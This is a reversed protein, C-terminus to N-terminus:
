FLFSNQMYRSNRKNVTFDKRQSTYCCFEVSHNIAKHFFTEQYLVNEALHMVFYKKIWQWKCDAMEHQYRRKGLMDLSCFVCTHIFRVSFNFSWVLHSFSVCFHLSIIFGTQVWTLRTFFPAHIAWLALKRIRLEYTTTAIILNDQLHSDTLRNRYKSKIYVICSFTAECM